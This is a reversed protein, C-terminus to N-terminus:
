SLALFLNGQSRVTWIWEPTAITTSLSTQTGGSHSLAFYILVLFLLSTPSGVSLLKSVPM